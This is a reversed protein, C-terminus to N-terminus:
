LRRVMSDEKGSIVGMQHQINGFERVQKELQTRTQSLEETKLDLDNQMEDITSDLSEISRRLDQIEQEKM